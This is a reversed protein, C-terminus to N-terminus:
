ARKKAYPNNDAAAKAAVIASSVQNPSEMVAADDNGDAIIKQFARKRKELEALGADLKQERIAMEDLLKQLHECRKRLEDPNLLVRLLMTLGDKETEPLVSPSMMM